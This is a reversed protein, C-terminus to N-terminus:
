QGHPTKFRRKPKLHGQQKYLSRSLKDALFIPEPIKHFLMAKVLKVSTEMSIKHGPSILIPHKGEGSRLLTCLFEGQTTRVEATGGVPTKLTLDTVLQRTIGDVFLTTKAVGLTAIDNEIGIQCASGFRRPHYIGNGDIMLLQPYISPHDRKCLQLLERFIDRERFALFGSIYPVTIEREITLTELHNGSPYECIVLCGLAVNTQKTSYTIDLGGIYKLREDKM